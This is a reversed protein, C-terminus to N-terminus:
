KLIALMYTPQPTEIEFSSSRYFEVAGQNDALVWVTDIDNERMWREMQDLLARGIGRRRWAHHVGIEYLLLELGKGSRLSLSNCQLFGIVEGDDVAVWCFVGPNELFQKAMEPELPQSPEGRDDLDFDSDHLALFELITEDGPKLRKITTPTQKM